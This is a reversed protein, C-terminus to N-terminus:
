PLIESTVMKRWMENQLKARNQTIAITTVVLPKGNEEHFYGFPTRANGVPECYLFKKGQLNLYKQDGQPTGAIAMLAHSFETTYIGLLEYEPYHALIAGFLAVKSDCDGYKNLLTDIPSFQGNIERQQYIGPPIGYPIDQCFALALAIRETFAPEKGYLSSEILYYIPVTFPMFFNVVQEFDSKMIYEDKIKILNFLGERLIRVKNSLAEQKKLEKEEESSYSYTNYKNLSGPVIGYKQRMMDAAARPYSWKWRRKAGRHDKFVYDFEYSAADARVNQATHPPKSYQDPLTQARSFGGCM